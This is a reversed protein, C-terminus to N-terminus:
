HCICHILFDAIKGYRDEWDQGTRSLSLKRGPWEDFMEIQLDRMVEYFRVMGELGTWGNMKGFGQGTTYTIVSALWEQPRTKLVNELTERVSGPDLYIIVPELAAIARTNEKVQAHIQDFPQNHRGLLVTIPNQWFCCDFVYIGTGTAAHVAFERWRQSSLRRYDEVPLCDYIDYKRLEAILEAPLDEGKDDKLKRYSLFVEGRRWESGSKLIERYAPFDELLRSFAPEDFCAMSEFDAPHDLNGELFLYPIYGHQALWASAFQATTTKGSGPIGEIHLLKADTKNM